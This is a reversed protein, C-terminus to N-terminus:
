PTEKRELLPAHSSWRIANERIAKARDGSPPHSALWSDSNVAGPILEPLKELLRAQHEAGIGSRVMLATAYADAEFEDKRSLKATILGLLWVALDGGIFPIIRALVGGLVLQAAQTGAVQIMRRKMHGLALHGMEHAAVSALEPATVEGRRFCDIFGQTVYIEGTDTALGNPNLDPLVRVEVKDVGAADALKQFLAELHDNQLLKSGNRLANGSAQARFKWWAVVGVILLIPILFRLMRGIYPRTPSADRPIM